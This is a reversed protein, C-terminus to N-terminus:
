LAVRSFCAPRVTGAIWLGGGESFPSPGIMPLRARGSCQCRTDMEPCQRWERGASRWDAHGMGMARILGTVGFVRDEVGEDALVELREEPFDRVAAVSVAQRAEGLLLEALKRVHPSSLWPKVRSRHVSQVKWRRTGKEQM